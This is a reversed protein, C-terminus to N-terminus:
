GFKESLLKTIPLRVRRRVEIERLREVMKKALPAPNSQSLLDAEVIEADLGQDAIREMDDLYTRKAVGKLFFIDELTLFCLVLNGFDFQITARSKMAESIQVGEPTQRDFLDFYVLRGTHVRARLSLRGYEHALAMIRASLQPQIECAFAVFDNFSTFAIDIDKTGEKLGMITLACGGFIYGRIKSGVLNGVEELTENLQAKGMITQPSASAHLGESAAKAQDESATPEAVAGCVKM